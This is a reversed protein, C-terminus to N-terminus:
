FVWGFFFAANIAYLTGSRPGSSGSNDGGDVSTVNADSPGLSTGSTENPLLSPGTSSSTTDNPGQVSTGLKNGECALLVIWGTIDAVLLIALILLFLSTLPRSRILHTLRAKPPPDDETSRYTPAPSSARAQPTSPRIVHSMPSILSSSRHLQFNAIPPLM